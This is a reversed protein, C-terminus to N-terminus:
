LHDTANNPLMFVDSVDWLNETANLDPSLSAWDLVDIGEDIGDVRAVFAQTNDKMLFLGLGMKLTDKFEARQLGIMKMEMLCRAM